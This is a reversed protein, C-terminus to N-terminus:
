SNGFGGLSLQVKVQQLLEAYSPSSDFVMDLEDPDPEINGKLFADKDGHHVFVCTRGMGSDLTASGAEQHFGSTTKYLLFCQSSTPRPSSQHDESLTPPPSQPHDQPLTSPSLPPHDEPSTPPRSM